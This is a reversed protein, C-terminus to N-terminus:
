VKISRAGLYSLAFGGYALLAGLLDPFENLTDDPYRLDYILVWVGFLAMSYGLVKMVVPVGGFKEATATRGFFILAALTPLVLGVTDPLFYDELIVGFIIEVGILILAGLAVMGQPATFGAKEMATKADSMAGQMPSPEPTSGTQGMSEEPPGSEMTM